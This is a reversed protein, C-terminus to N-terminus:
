QYKIWTEIEGAIREWGPEGVLWHGHGEFEKFTSVKNYKEAVKKAVSSPVMRDESGAVVLVPCEMQKEDVLTAKSFDLWWLGTEIVTRGSEYVFRDYIERRQQQPLQNFVAYEARAYSIRYPKKWFQYSALLPLFSKIVPYSLVNIGRPPAPALLVLKSVLGRSAIIQGILGGMSHGMLVPPRNLKKIQQEIDDVYDLIGTVGLKDPPSQGADVQHHRLTVPICSYGKNHFYEVYNDWGWSGGWMGHVMILKDTM